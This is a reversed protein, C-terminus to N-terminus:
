FLILSPRGGQHQFLAQHHFNGKILHRPPKKKVEFLSHDLNPQSLYHTKMQGFWGHCFTLSKRYLREPSQMKLINPAPQNFLPIRQTNLPPMGLIPDGRMKFTGNVFTRMANLWAEKTSYVFSADMWSTM